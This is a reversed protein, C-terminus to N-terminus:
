ATESSTRGRMADTLNALMARVNQAQQRQPGTLQPVQVGLTALVQEHQEPPLLRASQEVTLRQHRVADAVASARAAPDFGLSPFWKAQRGEDRAKQVLRVYSERFAMRAAIEDGSALLPAAVGYAEAMEDSMVASSYEDKPIMAWAEEAGPRGDDLRSIVDALTLRGRVERRCRELAGTVQHEPYRALDQAFVQAAVESMETGLLEATVAVAKLLNVSPEHM